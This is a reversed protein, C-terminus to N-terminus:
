KIYIETNLCNNSWIYININISEYKLYNRHKVYINLQRSM